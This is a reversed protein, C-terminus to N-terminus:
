FKNSLAMVLNGRIRAQLNEEAVNSATDHFLPTLTEDYSTVLKHIPLELLNVGLQKALESADNRNADSTYRSPMSVATIAEPGLADAAIVLSVASDIGGSLGLVAKQFGNKSFYDATGLVLARYVEAEEARDRICM